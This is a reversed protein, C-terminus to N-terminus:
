RLGFARSLLAVLISGLIGGLFAGLATLTKAQGKAQANATEIAVLRKTHDASAEVTPKVAERHAELTRVREELARVAPSLHEKHTAEVVALRSHYEGMTERLTDIKGDLRQIADLIQHTDDPPLTPM